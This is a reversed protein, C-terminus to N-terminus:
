SSSVSSPVPKRFGVSLEHCFVYLLLRECRQWCFAFVIISVGKLPVIKLQRIENESGGCIWMFQLYGRHPRM